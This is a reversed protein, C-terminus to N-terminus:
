KKRLKLCYKNESAIGDLISHLVRAKEKIDMGKSRIGAEKLAEKLEGPELVTAAICYYSKSRGENFNDLMKFLLNERVKQSKRFEAMGNKEIFSIDDELKQYCKFSDYKKGAERHKKWKSCISSEKCFGCFEINKKDACNLIACAAGLRWDTKCGPCRSKTKIVHSPCLRCSLGCVGIEKYKSRIGM